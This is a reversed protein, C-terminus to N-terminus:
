RSKGDTLEAFLLSANREVSAKLDDKGMDLVAVWLFTMGLSVVCWLLIRLLVLFM